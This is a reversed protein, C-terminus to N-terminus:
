IKLMDEESYGSIKFLINRIEELSVDGEGTDERATEQYEKKGERRGNIHREVQEVCTMIHSWAGLQRWWLGRLRLSENKKHNALGGEEDEGEALLKRLFQRRYHRKMTEIVSQDM